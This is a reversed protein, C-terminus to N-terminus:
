SQKYYNSNVEAYKQWEDPLQDEAFCADVPCAEVCADCDICEEPDIYLQEVDDYGPEDPTPHICDVPCVEVCSNDKTGICPEAIVYAMTEELKETDPEPTGPVGPPLSGANYRQGKTNLAQMDENSLQNSSHLRSGMEQIEAMMNDRAASNRAAVEVAALAESFESAYRTALDNEFASLEQAALCEHRHRALRDPTWYEDWSLDWEQHYYRRLYDVGERLFREPEYACVMQLSLGQQLLLHRARDRRAGCNPQRGIERDVWRPDPIDTVEFVFLVNAVVCTLCSNDDVQYLDLPRRQRMIM